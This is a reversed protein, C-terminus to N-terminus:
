DDSVEPMKFVPVPFFKSITEQLWELLYVEEPDLAKSEDDSFKRGLLEHRKKNVTGQVVGLLRDRERATAVLAYIYEHPLKYSTQAGAREEIFALDKETLETM